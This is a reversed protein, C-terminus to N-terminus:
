MFVIAFDRKELIERDGKRIGGDGADQTGGTTTFGGQEVGNAVDTFGIASTQATEVM